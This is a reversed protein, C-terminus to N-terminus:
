DFKPKCKRCLAPVHAVGACVGDLYFVSVTCGGTMDADTIDLRKLKAPQKEQAVLVAQPEAVVAPRALCGLLAGLTMSLAIATKM